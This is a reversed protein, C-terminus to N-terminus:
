LLSDINNIISLKFDRFFVFIFLSQIDIKIDSKIVSIEIEIFSPTM